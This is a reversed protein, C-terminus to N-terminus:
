LQPREKRSKRKEPLKVSVQQNRTLVRCDNSGVCFELPFSVMRVSSAASRRVLADRSLREPRWVTIQVFSKGPLESKGAVGLMDGASVSKGEYVRKEVTGLHRYTAITSDSHLIDIDNNQKMRVVVGSRAAVVKSGVPLYFQVSYRLSPDSERQDPVYAFARVGDAFPFRYREPSDHHATFDGIQWAYSCGYRMGKSADRPTLRALVKETQPPVVETHPLPVDSRANWTQDSPLDFTVTVPSYGRNVAVIRAAAPSQPMYLPGEAREDRLAFDYEGTRTKAASEIAAAPVASAASVPKGHKSGRCDRSDTCFELPFSVPQYRSTERPELLTTALQEPRWVALQLYARDGSEGAVGVPEGAKVAKGVRLGPAVAGLHGYTAITADDHLILVDNNRDIRVVTGKRAALVQADAPLSFIAAHRICPTSAANQPAIARGPVEDSFPLRYGEPCVHQATHDGISWTHYWVLKWPAHSNRPDFRAVVAETRPPVVQTHAKEASLSINDSLDRDYVVTVSVPAYGRNKVILRVSPAQTGNGLFSSERFDVQEISFDYDGNGSGTSPKEVAPLAKVAPAKDFQLVNFNVVAGGEGSKVSKLSPNSACGLLVAAFVVTFLRTTM